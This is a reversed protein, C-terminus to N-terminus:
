AAEREQAAAALGAARAADFVAVWSAREAPGIETWQKDTDRDPAGIGDLYSDRFERGSKVEGTIVMEAVCRWRRQVADPQQDFIVFLRTRYRARFAAQTAADIVATTM